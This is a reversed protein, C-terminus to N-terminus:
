FKEIQIPLNAWTWNLVPILKLGPSYELFYSIHHILDTQPVGGIFQGEQQCSFNQIVRFECGVSVVVEIFDKKGCVAGPLSIIGHCVFGQGVCQLFDGLKSCFLEVTTRCAFLQNILNIVYSFFNSKPTLTSTYNM